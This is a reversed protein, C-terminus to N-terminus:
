LCYARLRSGRHILNRSAALRISSATIAIPPPRCGGLSVSDPSSSVARTAFGRIARAFDRRRRIGAPTRRSRIKGRVITRRSKRASRAADRRASRRSRRRATESERRRRGRDCRVAPDAPATSSNAPATRWHEPRTCWPSSRSRSKGAITKHRRWATDRRFPARSGRPCAFRPRRRSTRRRWTRRSARAQLSRGAGARRARRVRRPEVQDLQLRVQHLSQEGVLIAKEVVMRSDIRNSDDLGRNGIQTRMAQGLAGARERLLQRASKHLPVLAAEAALELLQRDGRHELNPQALVLDELAVDVVHRHALVLARRDVPHRLRRSIKEVFVQGLHRRRFRRRQNSHDLRRRQVIRPAMGIAAELPAVDHEAHHLLRAHDVVGGIRGRM